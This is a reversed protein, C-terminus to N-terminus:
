LVGLAFELFDVLLEFLAVAIRKSCVRLGFALGNVPPLTVGLIREGVEVEANFAFLLLLV